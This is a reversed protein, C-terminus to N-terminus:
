SVVIGKDIVTKSTKTKKSKKNDNKNTTTAEFDDGTLQKQQTEVVSSRRFFLAPKGNKDKNVTVQLTNLVSLWDDLTLSSGIANGSSDFLAGTQLDVYGNRNFYSIFPAHTAQGDNKYLSAFWRGDNSKYVRFLMGSFVQYVSSTQDPTGLVDKVDVPKMSNVNAINSIFVINTRKKGVPVSIPCVTVAGKVVKTFFALLEDKNMSDYVYGYIYESSDTKSGTGDVVKVYPVNTHKDVLLTVTKIDASKNLADVTYSNGNSEAVQYIIGDLIFFKFKGKVKVMRASLLGSAPKKDEQLVEGSTENIPLFILEQWQYDSNVSYKIDTTATDKKSKKFSMTYASATTDKGSKTEQVQVNGFSSKWTGTGLNTWETYKNDSLPNMMMGQMYGAKNEELLLLRMDGKKSKNTAVSQNLPVPQGDLGYIHGGALGVWQKNKVDLVYYGNMITSYYLYYGSGMKVTKGPFDSSTSVIMSTGSAGSKLSTDAKNMLLSPQMMPAGLKKTDGYLGFQHKFSELVSGKFEQLLEGKSSFIAGVPVSAGNAGKYSNPVDFFTYTYEKSDTLSGPALRVFFQELSDQKLMAYPAPLLPSSQLRTIISAVDSQTWTINQDVVQARKKLDDLEKKEAAQQAIYAAQLQALSDKLWSRWYVSHSSAYNSVASMSMKMKPGHLDYVQGSVLSMIFKTTDKDFMKGFTTTKGPEVTVFLDKPSFDLTSTLGSANFYVYNGTAIDGAYIGLHIKGMSGVLIPRNEVTAFHDIAAKLTTAFLQSMGKGVPYVTNLHQYIEQGVTKKETTATTSLMVNRGSKDKLIHGDMGYVTGTVLSVLAKAKSSAEAVDIMKLTSLSPEADDVAIFWDKTVLSASPIPSIEYIWLSHAQAEQSDLESALKVHLNGVMIGQVLASDDFDKFWAERQATVYDTLKKYSDEGIKAGADTYQKYIYPLWTLTSEKSNDVTFIKGNWTGPADQFAKDDLAKLSGDKQVIYVIDTVLSIFKSVNANPLGTPSGSSDEALLIDQVAKQGSTGFCNMGEYLRLLANSSGDTLNYASAETLHNNGYVFPGSHYRGILAKSHEEFQAYLNSSGSEFNTKLSDIASKIKDSLDPIAAEQGHEDYAVATGDHQFAAIDTSLLSAMYKIKPNLGITPWKVSDNGPVPQESPAQLPVQNGNEDFFIVYDVYSGTASNMQSGQQVAKAFPTDACLYIWCGQAVYNNPNAFAVDLKKAAKKSGKDVSVDPHLVNGLNKVVVGEKTADGVSMASYTPFTTENILQNYQTTGWGFLPIVSGFDGFTVGSAYRDLAEHIICPTSLETTSKGKADTTTTDKKLTQGTNQDCDFYDSVAESVQVGQNVGSFTEYTATGGAQTLKELISACSQSIAKVNSQQFQPANAKMPILPPSPPATVQEGTADIALGSHLDVILGPFQPDTILANGINDYSSSPYSMVFHGYNYYAPNGSNYRQAADTGAVGLLKVKYEGQTGGAITNDFALSTDKAIADGVNEVPVLVYLPVSQLPNEENVCSEIVQLVWNGFKIPSAVTRLQAKRQLEAEMAQQMMQPITMFLIMAVQEMIFHGAGLIKGKIDWKGALDKKAASLEEKAKAVEADKAAAKENLADAHEQAAKAEEQLEANEPNERAEKAANRADETAQNAESRASAAEDTASQIKAEADSVKKTKQALEEAKEAEAKTAESANPNEAKLKADQAAKEANQTAEESSPGTFFEKLKDLKTKEKVELGSEAADAPGKATGGAINDVLQEQQSKLANGGSAPDTVASETFSGPSEDPFSGTGKAALLAEDAEQGKRLASLMEDAKVQSLGETKVLDNITSEAVGRVDSTIKTLAEFNEGIDKIAGSMKEVNGGVATLSDTLSERAAKAADELVQPNALASEPLDKMAGSIIDQVEGLHAADLGFQDIVGQAAAGSAEEITRGTNELAEEGAGALAELSSLCVRSDFFSILFLGCLLLFFKNSKQM